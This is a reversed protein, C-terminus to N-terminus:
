NSYGTIFKETQSKQELALHSANTLSDLWSNFVASDKIASCNRLAGAALMTHHEILSNIEIITNSWFQLQLAGLDDSLNILITKTEPYYSKVLSVVVASLHGAALDMEWDHADDNLQRAILFHRFFDQLKLQDKGTLDYGLKLLVGASAISHGWSRQWLQKMSGYDPLETVILRPGDVSARANCVEWLNAEDMITLCSEVYKMFEPHAPLAENFHRLMTRSAYNAVALQEPRGEGDLIDDFINYSLWGNLSALNLNSVTADSVEQQCAASTISAMKTIQQGKDQMIVSVLSARYSARLKESKIAEIDGRTGAPLRLISKKAATRKMLVVPLKAYCSLAELVFATTLSRSGGYHKGSKKTPDYFLGFAEWYGLRNQSNILRSAIPDLIPRPLELKIASSLLLALLLDSTESDVNDIESTVWSRLKNKHKGEYWRSIFYFITARDPYYSSTLQEKALLTDVYENLSELKVGQTALFWAINSNVTLDIDQWKPFKATDILWTNYPGGPRTETNILTRAFKGIVSGDTLGPDYGSLAGLACATDDLDDPYLQETLKIQLREIYNWTWDPSKNQLIYSALKKKVLESESVSNLCELILISLFVAPLKEASTFDSQDLSTYSIFSGRSTQESLLFSLAKKTAAKQNM